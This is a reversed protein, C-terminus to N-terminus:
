RTTSRVLKRAPTAAASAWLSKVACKIALRQKEDTAVFVEKIPPAKMAV